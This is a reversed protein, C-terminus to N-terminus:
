QTGRTSPPVELWRRMSIKRLVGSYRSRTAQVPGGTPSAGAGQDPAARHRARAPPRNSPWSAVRGGPIRRTRQRRSAGISRGVVGAGHARLACGRTPTLPLSLLRRPRDHAGRGLRDGPRGRRPRRASRARDGVGLGSSALQLQQELMHRARDIGARVVDVDREIGYADLLLRLRRAKEAVGTPLGIARCKEDRVFPVWRWAVWGIEWARPGPTATDWDILAVPLGRRFITNSPFVENHCITEVPERPAYCWDRGKWRFTAAADHYARLLAGLHVLVEDQWVFDPLRLDFRGGEDPIFETGRGDVGEVFTLVERGQDDFGLARPAGDFGEREVHQLLDVVASSWRDSSRRVTDGVRVRRRSPTRDGMDRPPVLDIEPETM